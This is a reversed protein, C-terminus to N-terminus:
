RKECLFHQNWITNTDYIFKTWCSKWNPTYFLKYFLRSVQDYNKSIIIPYMDTKSLIYKRYWIIWRVVHWFFPSSFFLAFGSNWDLIMRTLFFSNCCYLLVTCQSGVPYAAIKSCRGTLTANVSSSRGPRSRWHQKFHRRLRQRLRKTGRSAAAAGTASPASGGRPQRITEPKQEAAWGLTEATSSM